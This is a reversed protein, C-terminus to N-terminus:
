PVSPPLWGRFSLVHQSFLSFGVHRGHLPRPHHPASIACLTIVGSLARESIAWFDLIGLKGLFGCSGSTM